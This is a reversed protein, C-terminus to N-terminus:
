RLKKFMYVPCSSHGTCGLAKEIYKFNFKQYLKQAAKMSPLTELYCGEFGFEFAQAMCVQLLKAGLGKFRIEPLFYMKQLECINAEQNALPAIGAGGFITDNKGVVFYASKPTQYTSFLDNVANDGYATGEKPAKLEDFVDKIILAMASNDKREIKRIKYQEGM